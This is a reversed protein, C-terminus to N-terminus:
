FGVETYLHGPRETGERVAKAIRMPLEQLKRKVEKWEIATWNPKRYSSAHIQKSAARM